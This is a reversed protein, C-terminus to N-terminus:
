TIFHNNGILYSIMEELTVCMCLFILSLKIFNYIFEIKRLISLLGLMCIM